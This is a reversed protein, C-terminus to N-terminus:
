ATVASSMDRDAGSDIWVSESLESGVIGYAMPRRVGPLAIVDFIERSAGEVFLWEAVAGTRLDFIFLGLRPRQNAAALRDDLPLGSYLDGTRPMSSGAIAYDGVFTLGRLFGPAFGLESWAGTARDVEVLTGNGSNTLYLSDRHLRPSHPMSFGTSIVENAVVDVVVGGGRRESRWRELDDTAGVATVYAPGDAGMALGNLHCRDGPRFTHVFPPQWVPEFSYRDSPRALCSFRTAALTVGNAPGGRPDVAVDHVNINGTVWVQRPAFCRDFGSDTAEATLPVDDFRWIQYRGGMYIRHTGDASLGMTKDFSREYVAIRDQLDRGVFVLKSPPLAFALSTDNAALWAEFGASMTLRFPADDAAAHAPDTANV